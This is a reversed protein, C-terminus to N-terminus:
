NEAAWDLLYEEDGVVSHITGRASLFTLIPYVRRVERRLIVNMIYRNIWRQNVLDPLHRATSTEVFGMDASRLAELNPPVQFGDRILDANELADPGYIHCSVDIAEHRQSVTAEDENVGVYGNADPTLTEIGIAMWNVGIDPQKPPDVQWKPRVLIGPLGSVGVMVTQIFQTLNLGRPLPTTHTPLIYTM